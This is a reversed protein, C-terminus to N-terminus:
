SRDVFELSFQKGTIADLNSRKAKVPHLLTFHLLIYYHLLTIYNKKKPGCLRYHVGSWYNNVQLLM